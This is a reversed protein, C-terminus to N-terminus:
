RAAGSGGGAEHALVADVADLVERLPPTSRNWVARFRLPIPVGGPLGACVGPGGLDPDTTLAFADGAAVLVLAARDDEAAVTGTPLGRRALTDLLLDHAAPHGSRSPAALSLGRLAALRIAGGPCAREPVLLRADIRFVAGVEVAALVGPHRVVAVDLRRALVQEVLAASSDHVVQVRGGDLTDRVASALAAGVLPRLQLAVGIRAGSGKERRSHALEDFRRAARLLTHAETLLETGADTLEVGRASREFLRAGVRQELRRLGQSLPPQSMGLRSAARGFHREEAIIVFFNLHRILDM